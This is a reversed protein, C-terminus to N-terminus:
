VKNFTITPKLQTITNKPFVENILKDYEFM